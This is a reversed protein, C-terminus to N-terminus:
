IPGRVLLVNRATLSKNSSSLYAGITTVATLALASGHSSDYTTSTWVVQSTGWTSWYTSNPVSTEFDVITQIEHSSPLRWDNHGAFNASNAQDVYVFASETGVGGDDWPLAGDDAAGVTASVDRAWMLGTQNDQVCANSKVETKSNVTINTTGSYQGTTKATYDRAQGQQEYGDDGATFGGPTYDTQQGTLLVLHTSVAASGGTLVRSGSFM